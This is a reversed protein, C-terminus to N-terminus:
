CTRPRSGYGMRADAHVGKMRMWARATQEVPSRSHSSRRWRRGADAYDEQLTDLEAAYKTLHQPFRTEFMFAM